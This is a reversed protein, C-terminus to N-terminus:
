NMGLLQIHYAFPQGTGAVTQLIQRRGDLTFWHPYGEVGLQEWLVADPDVFVPGEIQAAMAEVDGRPASGVFVLLGVEPDDGFMEDVQRLTDLSRRCASCWPALYVVICRDRGVCPDADSDSSEAAVLELDPFRDGRKAIIFVAFAAIAVVVAVIPVIM